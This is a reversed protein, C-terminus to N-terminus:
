AHNYIKERSVGTAQEDQLYRFFATEMGFTIIVNIMSTWSYVDSIQGYAEESFVKTYFPTLLLNLMRGLISSIGYIATQGALKKLLSM